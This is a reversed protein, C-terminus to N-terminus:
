SSPMRRRAAHTLVLGVGALLIGGIALQLTPAGTFPLATTPLATSTADVTIPMRIQHTAGTPDVGSAVLNHSGVALSAPVTVPDTFDGHADTTITGLIIPTSYIIITATSYAAFGTGIVTVQQGAALQTLVGDTTTLTTPAALPATAPVKPDSATVANSAASAVSDGAPSHTVLTYTYSTGATAGIVCSTATIATTTCTAPGPSASVTYGTVTPTTSEQWSVTVSAVGTTATPADVTAATAVPTAVTSAIPTVANSATSESSNGVLNTAHVTFTYATGATLGPVSCPSSSCTVMIAGPASTLTYGTIAAGGNSAPATFSVTASANGATATVGTPAGPVSANFTVTASGDASESIGKAAISAGTVYTSNALSSGGGGGAMVPFFSVSLGGSGGGGYGGGGGGTYFSNNPVQIGDGGTAITASVPDDNNGANGNSSSGSGGAGGTSGAAAQGGQPGYYDAGNSGADGGDAQQSAGGGGGAIVLKGLLAHSSSLAFAGSGAGGNAAIYGSPGAAGVVVSVYATNAPLASTGIVEAGRGGNGGGPTGGDGGSV